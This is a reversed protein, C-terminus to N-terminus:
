GRLLLFGVSGKTNGNPLYANITYTKTYIATIPVHPPLRNRKNKCTKEWEVNLLGVTADIFHSHVVVTYWSDLM